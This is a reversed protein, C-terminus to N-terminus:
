SPNLTSCELCGGMSGPDGYLCNTFTNNPDGQTGGKCTKLIAEEPRERVLVILEPRSWEKEM